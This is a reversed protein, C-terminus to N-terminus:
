LHERIAALTRPDADLHEFVEVVVANEVEPDDSAAMEEIAQYVGALSAAGAADLTGSQSAKELRVVFPTLAGVIVGPLDFNDAVLLYEPSQEFGPVRRVLFEPLRDYERPYIEFDTVNASM